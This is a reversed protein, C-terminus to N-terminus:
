RCEALQGGLFLYETLAILDAMDVSGDASGDVNAADVCALAVGTGFLHDILLTQDGIDIGDEGDINGMIWVCCPRNEDYFTQSGAWNPVFSRYKDDSMRFATGFSFTTTDVMLSDIRKWSEVHFFISGLITSGAGAQLGADAFSSVAIVFQNYKNSSDVSNNRLLIRRFNFAQLAEESVVASDLTATSSAWEFGGQIGRIKVEPSNVVIDVRFSRVSSVSSTGIDVIKLEVENSISPEATASDQVGLHMVILFVVLTYGFLSKM